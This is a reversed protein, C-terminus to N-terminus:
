VKKRYNRVTRIVHLGNREYYRKGAEDTTHFFMKNLGKNKMHLFSYNLLVSGIGDNRNKEAIGIPGFRYPNNDIASMSFGCIRGDSDLVMIINDEATKNRMSFLANRKWGGGFENKLFELMELSRNNEFLTFQYGKDELQKKKELIDDNPVFDTLDMGMSYHFEKAEYGLNEYFSKAEPYNDEDVGYFYYNPSYAALTIEKTGLKILNDELMKYIKTGINQRRYDPDVFLVNIWGRDPELGRELYPFKRKTAYAFGVVKNEDLVVHSMSTDFNDDLISKFRFEEEDIQDIFLCRNWLDIVQSEYKESFNTYIM